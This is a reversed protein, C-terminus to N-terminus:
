LENGAFNLMVNKATELNDKNVSNLLKCTYKEKEESYLTATLTNNRKPSVSFKIMTDDVSVFCEAVETIGIEFTFKPSKCVSKFDDELSWLWNRVDIYDENSLM